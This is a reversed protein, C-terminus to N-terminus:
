MAASPERFVEGGGNALFDRPDLPKSLIDTWGRTWANRSPGGQMAHATMAIIPVHGGLKKKGSPIAQTAELGGMEASCM